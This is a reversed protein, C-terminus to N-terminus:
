HAHSVGLSTILIRRRPDGDTDKTEQCWSFLLKGDIVTVLVDISRDDSCISLGEKKLNLLVIQM